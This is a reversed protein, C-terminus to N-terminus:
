RLRLLVHRPLCALLRLLRVHHRHLRAHLGHAHTAHEIAPQPAPRALQVDRPEVRHHRLLVELRYKLRKPECVVQHEVLVGRALGHPTPRNLVLSRRVGRPCDRLEVAEVERALAHNHGDGRQLHHRRRLARQHHVLQVLLPAIAHLQIRLRTSRQHCPQRALLRGLRDLWKTAVNPCQRPRGLSRHVRTHGVTQVEDLADKARSGGNGGLTEQQLVHEVWSLLRLGLPVQLDSLVDLLTRERRLAAGGECSSGDHQGGGGGGRREAPPLRRTAAM